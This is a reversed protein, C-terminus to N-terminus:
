QSHIFRPIIYTTIYPNIYPNYRTRLPLGQSLPRSLLTLVVIAAAIGSDTTPTWNVATPTIPSNLEPGDGMM